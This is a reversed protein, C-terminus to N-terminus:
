RPCKEMFVLEVSASLPKTRFIKYSLREYLRINGVSRSGTFLEFRNAAPFETEVALMLQTGLGQGQFDPHVILRGVACTGGSTSARVSGIISGAACAKLFTTETFEEKIEDLTQTLPPISWDDYIIAESQYALKQLELIEAADSVGAHFIQSM